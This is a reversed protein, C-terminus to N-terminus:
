AQLWRPLEGLQEREWDGAPASADDLRRAILPALRELEAINDQLEREVNKAGRALSANLRKLIPIRYQDIFVGRGPEQRAESARARFRAQLGQHVGVVAALRAREDATLGARTIADNVYLFALVGWYYCYDWTSKLAMLHRDGFGPYQGQYLSLSSNFYSRYLQEFLLCDRRADGSRRDNEVLTTVMTNAIAIFDTGPSYFPDLFVGSEGALAWREPSYLTQADHSFHRLFGFDMVPKDAVADALVPEYRGLWALARDFSNYDELPHMGGDAVIGISTAGCALPILWCWYGPGMLHNTSQRRPLDRPRAQWTADGSWDGVDIDADVRFWAANVDHEVPRALALSRRLPGARSGADVLWRPRLEFEGDDGRCQLRHAGSDTTAKVVRTGDVFRGGAARVRQGLENELVGRDVQYSPVALLHSVGLEDAHHLERGQAGFHFRLGNKRVHAKDLHDQLGVTHSLYHAGIEVMSEGVKHAATPVPHHNREVVVVDLDDMRERLQLALTLGALGGGIIAVDPQTNM